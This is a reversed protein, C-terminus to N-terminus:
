SPKIILVTLFALWIMQGGRFDDFCNQWKAVVLPVVSVPLGEIESRWSVNGGDVELLVWKTTHDSHCVCNEDLWNQWPTWREANRHSEHRPQCLVDMEADTKKKKKEWTTPRGDRSYKKRRLGPPRAEKRPWVVETNSGHVKRHHERGETEELHWRKECPRNTHPRM